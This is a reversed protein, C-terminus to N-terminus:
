MKSGRLVAAARKVCGTLVELQQAAVKVDDSRIAEALGPYVDAGYGLYLGQAYVVHKFWRRGPLGAPHAFAREAQVLRDNLSAAAHSHTRSAMRESDAVDAATALEQIAHLLPDISLAMSHTHLLDHIKGTYATLATAYTTYNLPLVAADALRLAVTGWVKAMAVHYEFTPDGFRSMWAMSDYNSHYTAYGGGRIQNFGLDASAIGLNNLFGAYDSGGGLAGITDDSGMAPAGGPLHTGQAVGRILDSLSPVASAEWYPGSVAVDVNLYAVAKRSLEAAHAEVWAVSGLLGAEEGDWNALVITRRPRWGGQLLQGLGRAVELLAASGSNPDAAGFTWADRHNGLVVWRDPEVAGPITAIVNWITVTKLTHRVMLEAVAPGPGIHYTINLGGAWEKPAPVGGLARLFPLADGYGIPQVPITPILESPDTVGCVAFRSKDPSGECRSSFTVSGRQVSFPPRWPGDPYTPGKTFGDDAPDSYILVGAAGRVQAQWVKLGRFVQGYRVIVIRGKVSINRADLLLFDDLRGYNAYVVEATATGSASYCNYPLETYSRPDGSTPDEPLVREKLAATFLDPRLLRLTAAVPYDMLVDTPWLTADLGYGRLTDRTFVATEYDEPTGAIHPRATYYALHEYIGWAAPVARFRDEWSPAQGSAACLLAALVLSVRRAAPPPM